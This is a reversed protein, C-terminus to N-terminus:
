TAAAPTLKDVDIVETTTTVKQVGFNFDHAETTFGYTEALLNRRDKDDTLDSLIQRVGAEDEANASRRTGDFGDYWVQYETTSDPQTM